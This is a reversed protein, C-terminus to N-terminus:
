KAIKFPKYKAFVPMEAPMYFQYSLHVMKQILNAVHFRDYSENIMILMSNKLTENTLAGTLYAKAVSPPATCKILKTLIEGSYDRFDQDIIRIEANDDKNIGFEADDETLRMMEEAATESDNEPLVKKPKNVLIAQILLLSTMYVASQEGKLEVRNLSTVYMLTNEPLQDKHLSVASGFNFLGLETGLKIEEVPPANYSKVM